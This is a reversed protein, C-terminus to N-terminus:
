QGLSTIEGFGCPLLSHVNLPPPVGDLGGTGELTVVAKAIKNWLAGATAAYGKASSLASTFTCLLDIYEIAALRGTPDMFVTPASDAYGYAWPPQADESLFRGTDPDYVRDRYQGFGSASDFERGSYLLSPPTGTGGVLRGFSAYQMHAVVNGADDVLDRVSGLHDTLTWQTQGGTEVAWIEDFRRGYFRRELVAGAADLVLAPNDFDQIIFRQVGDEEVRVRVGLPTYGFAWSKTVAGGADHLVHAILRNEHNYAFTEFAGDAKATRKVLNGNPDWAYTYTADALLEGGSGPQVDYAYTTSASLHSSTRNGESDWAYTEDPQAGSPHDAALLRRAGDVTYRHLGDADSMQLVNLAADRVLAIDEILAGSIARRHRLGTRRLPCGGCQYDFETFVVGDAGGLDAYRRLERQVGASDWTQEVRKDDVGAGTQTAGTLRGLGDWTYTTVGGVSDTVAVVHGTGDWEYDVTVHPAGPSGANDVRDLRGTPHYTMALAYDPARISELQGAATWTRTIVTPPATDWTETALRHNADYARTRTRGNRDVMKVLQGLADHQYTEVHGQPDTRSKLLGRGDYHAEWVNGLSDLQRTLRGGADHELFTVAGLPNTTASVDCKADYAWRTCNSLPDCSSALEDCTADWSQTWTEGGPETMAVERGQEDFDWTWTHGLADTMAVEHSEEDYVHVTDVFSLDDVWRREVVVNGREDYLLDQRFGRADVFTTLGTVVDHDITDCGELTVPDDDAGCVAIIRGDDGFFTRMVPRGLPDVVKTLYHPFDKDDYFFHTVEGGQDTFTALNGASDYAYRLEGPPLGDDPDDPEIITTIRGAADRLYTLAVGTSSVVGGKSVELTHGHIDEVHTLGASESVTYRVKDETTLVYTDPNYPLVFNFFAGGYNFITNVDVAELTDRVGPDPTWAPRASFLTPFGLQIPAFTFGVRHGDPRTVVVRAGARMAEGGLLGALGTATTEVPSDTLAAGLQLRWAPGFDGPRVDLSDYIRTVSLPIGAVNLVLDVFVTRFNGLKYGGGVGFQTAVGGTNQGDDGVIQVRYTDNPLVTTDLTALVGSNVEGSGSGIVTWAADDGRAISVTWTLNQPNDDTVSGVIEVPGLLLAGADPSLLTAVPKQSDTCDVFALDRAASATNGSPDTATASLAVTTPASRSLAACGDADLPLPTLDASLTRTAVAVDDSAAACVRVPRGLCAPDTAATLLIEPPTEDLLVTLTWAQEVVAGWGDSVAVTIAVEGADSAKPVWSVLGTSALVKLGPPGAVLAWALADGDADTAKAKYLYPAGAWTTLPPASTLVPAANSARVTIIFGQASLGGDADSIVVGVALEGVDALTPTWSMAGTAEDLTMGSPGAALGYLVSGGDPDIAAVEYVWPQGVVAHLPPSSVVVPPASPLTDVVTVAFSQTTAGGKGDSVTVEVLHTGLDAANPVWRAIDTAASFTMGDPATTLTTTLADGDPDSAVVVYLWVSGVAALVSPVSSILPAGPNTPLEGVGLTFSQTAKGGAGDSVSLAIKHAGPLAFPWTLHGSSADVALGAPATTLAYTLTDGDADTAHAAYSYASGVTAHTVPVSSFVPPANSGGATVTLTFRQSTVGGRGDSVAVRVDHAGLDSPGPTWTAVGTTANLTMASPGTVLAYTLTDGDPDTADADYRWPRDARASTTPISTFAPARDAPALWHVDFRVPVRQPDDFALPVRPAKAGPALSQGAPVAVVYPQGTPTVGAPNALSVSPPLQSGFAMLLPGTITDGGANVPHADFVLRSHGLDFATDSYTVAMDLSVESLTAFPDAGDPSGTLTVTSAFAGCEEVLELTIERTGDPVEVRTFFRGSADLAEVPVGDVLVALVPRLANVTQVVGTLVITQGSVLTSDSAPELEVVEPRVDVSSGATCASHAVLDVAGLLTSADTSYFAATGSTGAALVAALIDLQDNLGPEVFPSVVVQNAAAVSVAHDIAIEDDQDYPDGCFPGEDSFPMVLRVAGDQWPFREAVVATALAWNELDGAGATCGVLSEFGPPPDGPVDTGLLENVTTAACPITTTGGIGLLTANVPIGRAQLGTILDAALDCVLQAETAMSGSTDFLFVVDLAGCAACGDPIPPLAAAGKLRFQFPPTAAHAADLVVTYTGPALPWPGRDQNAGNAPLNQFLPEGAPDYLSAYLDTTPKTVDFLLEQGASDPSFRYSVVAGSTPVASTVVQNAIIVGGDLDSVLPFRLGWPTSGSSTSWLQLRLTGAPLTWPGVDDDTASNLTRNAFLVEGTPSTLTGVLNSAPVTLDFMTRTPQTLLLTVDIREGPGGLAGSVPTDLTAIVPPPSAPALLAFSVTPTLDNDPDVRLAYTGDLLVFPGLDHSANDFVSASVLVRGLPDTLTWRVRSTTSLADLYAIQGAVGPFFFTHVAGPSTFTTVIESPLVAPQALDAIGRLQFSYPPAVGQSSDIVLTYTGAALSFPGQDGVSTAQEAELRGFVPQGAADRLTWYLQNAGQQLDLFVRSDEALDVTWTHTSGPASLADTVVEDLAFSGTQDVATLVAFQYSPTGTGSHRLSLTYDGAALPYPGRDSGTTSTAGSEAFVPQGAGDTLKWLLGSAAVQLDVYVTTPSALAFTYADIEGSVAIAGSVPADLALPAGPTPPTAPGADVVTFSYTGLAAGEGLISLSYSGGLLAVTQDGLNTTRPLVERGLADRLLWNLGGNNSTATQDLTVVRGAPVTFIYADVEGPIEIAGAVPTGLSAPLPLNEPVTRVVFSGDGALPGEPIVHLTYDGGVLRIPGQDNINTTPGFVTRGLADDLRYDFGNVNTASLYDLYVVTDDPATFSLHNSAGLAASWAVPEDLTLSGEIDPSEVFQFSYSGTAAGEGLVSLTYDGAALPWPGLDTLSGTRSVIVQGDASRLEFNLGVANTSQLLDLAIRTPAALTFTHNAQQGPQTLAGEVVAFPADNHTTDVASVLQIEYSGLQDAEAYVALTHKGPALVYPGSDSASTTRPLLARGWPDLLELNVTGATTAALTDLYLKAGFPADFSYRHVSGPTTFVGSITAGLATTETTTPADHVIFSFTGTSAAEGVVTLTYTGGVLALPGLDNLATPSSAVVRGVSDALSWDLLNAASAAIRDVLVRAGPQVDFSFAQSEGSVAIEGAVLVGLGIPTPEAAVAVASAFALLAVVLSTLPKM